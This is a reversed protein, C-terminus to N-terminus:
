EGKPNSKTERVTFKRSIVLEGNCFFDFRYNGFSTFPLGLLEFNFEIIQSPSHFTIPGNLEAIPKNQDVNLCKLSAAYEGCGETLSIFVNLRSHIAPVKMASINSFIGILSKKGTKRDDIVSDCVVMALPLPMPKSIM